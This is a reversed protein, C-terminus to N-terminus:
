ALGSCSHYAPGRALLGGVSCAACCEESNKNKIEERASEFEQRADLEHDNFEAEMLAMIDLLEKKHQGHSSLMESRELGFEDILAQLDREFEFELGRIKSNHLDILKDVILLHSRLAMQYQEESDELDSDLMQIIADKRDVEREHNQSIIEVDKRLEEVQPPSRARRRTALLPRTALPRACRSM